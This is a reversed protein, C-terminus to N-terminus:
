AEMHVGVDVGLLILPHHHELIRLGTIVFRVKDGLRLEFPDEVCGYYEHVVGIGPVGFKGCDGNIARRITLGFVAAMRPCMVTKYAGTNVQM